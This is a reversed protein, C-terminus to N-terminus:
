RKVSQHAMFRQQQPCFYPLFRVLRISSTASKRLWGKVKLVCARECVCKRKVPSGKSGRTGGM